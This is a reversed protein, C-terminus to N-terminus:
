SAETVEAAFTGYPALVITTDNIEFGASVESLPMLSGGRWPLRVEEEALNVAILLTEDQGQRLFSVQREEVCDFRIRGRLMAEHSKRWALLRRVFQLVSNPDAEQAAVCNAIHDNPIPLWPDGDTFHAQPDTDSWPM